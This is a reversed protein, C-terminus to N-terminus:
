NKNRTALDYILGAVGGSMAGIAAGKGGGAVAGIAAGAGASGGVILASKKISRKSQTQSVTRPTSVTEPAINRTRVAPGSRFSSVPAVTNTPMVTTAPLPNFASTTSTYLGSALTGIVFALVLGGAILVKSKMIKGGRSM